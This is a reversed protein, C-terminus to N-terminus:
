GAPLQNLVMNRNQSLSHRKWQLETLKDAYEMKKDIRVSKKLRDLSSGSLRIGQGKYYSLNNRNQYFIDTM